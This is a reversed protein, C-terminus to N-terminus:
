PFWLCMRKEKIYEKLNIIKSEKKGNNRILTLVQHSKKKEKEHMGMM